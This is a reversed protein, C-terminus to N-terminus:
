APRRAPLLVTSSAAMIFLLGVYDPLTPREGLLLTASMVGIAPVMLTGLAAIGAPVKTVVEFWLVTALAQGLLAHYAFAVLTPTGLPRLAPWGEFLVMGVTVCIGGIFLQWTAFTLPPADLPFRKMLVTGAAWCAASMLAFGLGISVQGAVILPWALALLGAIGLLMGAIRRRDFREGLFMRAFVTAFIPMTFAVVAVRGTPASLQAYAILVNPAAIALAGPVLVRWVQGTPLALSQGRVLSVAALLLTAVLLAATRFTWPGLEGLVIKVAPWNLGWLVSILPM